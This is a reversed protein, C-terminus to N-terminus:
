FLHFSCGQDQREDQKWQQGATDLWLLNCFVMEGWVLLGEEGGEPAVDGRQSVDGAAANSDAEVGVSEGQGAALLHEVGVVLVAFHPVILPHAASSYPSLRSEISSSLFM